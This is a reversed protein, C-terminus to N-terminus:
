RVEKARKRGRSSPKGDPEPSVLIRLTEQADRRRRRKKARAATVAVVGIAAAKIVAPLGQSAMLTTLGTLVTAATM